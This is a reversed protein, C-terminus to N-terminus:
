EITRDEQQCLRLVLGTFDKWCYSPPGEHNRAIIGPMQTSVVFQNDPGPKSCEIRGTQCSM